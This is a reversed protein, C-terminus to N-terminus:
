SQQQQPVGGVRDRDHIGEVYDAQGAVCQVLASATDLLVRAPVAAALAVGEVGGTPGQVGSGVEEGVLLLVPERGQELAVLVDLDFCGPPM